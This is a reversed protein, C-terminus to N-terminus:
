FHLVIIFIYVFVPSLPIVEKHSPLRKDFSSIRTSAYPVNSSSFACIPKSIENNCVLLKFSPTCGAALRVSKKDSICSSSKTIPPSSARASIFVSSGTLVWFSMVFISVMISSSDEWSGTCCWKTKGPPIIGAAWLWTQRVIQRRASRRITAKDWTAVTEGLIRIKTM